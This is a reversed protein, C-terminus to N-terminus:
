MIIGVISYKFKFPMEVVQRHRKMLSFHYWICICIQTEEVPNVRQWDQLPNVQIPDVNYRLIDYCKSSTPCWCSFHQSCIEGHKKHLEKDTWHNQIISVLGWCGVHSILDWSIEDTNLVYCIVVVIYWGSKMASYLNSNLMVTQSM